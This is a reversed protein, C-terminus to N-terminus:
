SSPEAPPVVVTKVVASRYWRLVGISYALVYGFFLGTLAITLPSRGLSASMPDAGSAAVAGRHTAVLIFRYVLRGLFIVAIVAGLARHPTVFLGDPTNEFTSGRLGFYGAALGAFCGALLSEVLVADQRNFFAVLVVVLVAFGARARLGWPRIRQRSTLRWVRMGVRWILLAGIALYILLQEPHDFSM